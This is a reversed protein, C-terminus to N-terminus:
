DEIAITKQRETREQVVLTNPAYDGKIVSGAGFVCNDGIRTGRLVVCNAGLWVGSGIEVSDTVFNMRRAKGRKKYDHDHDYIRCGPGFIVDDGITIKQRAVISCYANISANNGISLEAGPLVSMLLGRQAALHEGIALRGGRHIKIQTGVPCSYLWKCTYAKGNVAKLWINRLLSTGVRWLTRISM